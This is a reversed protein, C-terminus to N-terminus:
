TTVRLTERAMRYELIAGSLGARKRLEMRVPMGVRRDMDQVFAGCIQDSKAAVAKRAVRVGVASGLSRGGVMVVLAAAMALVPMLLDSDTRWADYLWAPGVILGLLAIRRLWAITALWAPPGAPAMSMSLGSLSDSVEKEVGDAVGRLVSASGPALLGATDNVARSLHGAATAVPRGVDLPGDEPETRGGPMLGVMRLGSAKGHVVARAALTPYVFSDRVETRAEATAREWRADFGTSGAQGIGAAEGVAAVAEDMDTVLKRTVVQKADGLSALAELLEDIGTPPGVDPAASVPVVLPDRIGETMLSGRFDEILLAVEAETIRDVQNLVFVFQTQYGARRAVYGAHLVRDQYKEPDAVWVIADVRPLLADVTAHHEEVVSDTDPLDIVALWPVRDQGVRHEVGLDELLRVLGPEPEVPIWALPDATTPRLPGTEAVEEDALANIISSKGSGTGGALAVVVTEGLYGRRDRVSRGVIAASHVVDDAVVELAAAVVRDFRDILDRLDHM